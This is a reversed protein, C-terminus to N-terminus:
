PHKKLLLPDFADAYSVMLEDFRKSEATGDPLPNAQVIAYSYVWGDLRTLVIEGMRETDKLGNWVPEAYVRIVALDHASSDRAGIPQFRAAYARSSAASAGVPEISVDGEQWIRPITIATGLGDFVFLIEDAQVDYFLKGGLGSMVASPLASRADSTGEPRDADRSPNVDWRM